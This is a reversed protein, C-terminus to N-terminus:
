GQFNVDRSPPTYAAFRRWAKHSMLGVWALTSDKLFEHPSQQECGGTTTNGLSTERDTCFM